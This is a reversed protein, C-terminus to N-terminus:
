VYRGRLIYPHKNNKSPLQATGKERSRGTLYDPQRESSKYNVKNALGKFIVGQKDDRLEETHHFKTYWASM